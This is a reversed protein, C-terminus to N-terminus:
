ATAIGYSKRRDETASKRDVAHGALCPTPSRGPNGGNASIVNRGAESEEECCRRALFMSVENERLILRVANM